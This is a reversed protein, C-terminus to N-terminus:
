VLEKYINLYARAARDWSFLGAHEKILFSHRQEVYHKLGSELTQQMMLPDFDNFYYAANGGIEPLSTATSLFVPKGFYMAEIVPM